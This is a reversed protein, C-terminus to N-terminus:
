FCNRTLACHVVSKWLELVGGGGPSFLLFKSISILVIKSKSAKEAELNDTPPVRALPDAQKHKELSASLFNSGVCDRRFIHSRKKQKQKLVEIRM